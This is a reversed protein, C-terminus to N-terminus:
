TMKLVEALSTAGRLMKKIAVERLSLWGTAKAADEIAMTNRSMIAESVRDNTELLSFVGLRGRYGRQKCAECGVARWLKSKGDNAIGLSKLEDATPEYEERCDPCLKRVLRQALVGRVADKILFPEIRMDMLRGYAGPATEAHLTTFVMHGTLAAQMVLNAVPTNRIEGAMIINPAQRLVSRLATEFGFEKSVPIQDIGEFSWEVPDEITVIKRSSDNLENLTAYITTTKGGGTPGTVIVVGHSANMLARYREEQDDEFDLHEVAFVPVRTDIPRLTLVPGRIGPVSSMRCDIRGDGTHLVVRGDQSLDKREMNFQASRMGARIVERGVSKSLPEYEYLVGDVRRRVRVNKEMPEFHVDTAGDEVAALIISRFKEGAAADGEGGPEVTPAAEAKKKLEKWSKLGYDLALAHQVEQLTVEAKLIEEDGARSFRFHYRLTSCCSADGSKHAKLLDKAEKQLFRVSPNSPISRPM